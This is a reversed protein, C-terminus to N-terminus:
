ANRANERGMTLFKRSYMRCQYSEHLNRNVAEYDDSVQM